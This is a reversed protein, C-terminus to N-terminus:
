LISIQNMHPLITIVLLKSRQKLVQHKWCYSQMMAVTSAVAEHFIKRRVLRDNWHLTFFYTALEAGVDIFFGFLDKEFFVNVRKSLLFDLLGQFFHILGQYLWCWLLLAGLFQSEGFFDLRDVYWLLLHYYFSPNHHLEEVPCLTGEWILL